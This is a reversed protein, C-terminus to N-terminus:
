NNLERKRKGNEPTKTLGSKKKVPMGATDRWANWNKRIVGGQRCDGCITLAKNGLSNTCLCIPCPVAKGKALKGTKCNKMIAPIMAGIKMGPFRERILSRLEAWQQKKLLIDTSGKESSRLNGYAKSIDSTPFFGGDHRMARPVPSGDKKECCSYRRHGLNCLCRCKGSAIVEFCWKCNLGGLVTSKIYEPLEKWGGYNEKDKKCLADENKTLKGKSDKNTKKKRGLLQSKMMSNLVPTETYVKKKQKAPKKKPEVNDTFFQADGLFNNDFDSMKFVGDEEEESTQV